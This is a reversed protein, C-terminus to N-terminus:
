GARMPIDGVIRDDPKSITIDQPAPTHGKPAEVVEKVQEYGPKSAKVVYHGPEPMFSYRGEYDTLRSTVVKGYSPDILQITTLPLVANSAIDYVVGWAKQLRTHLSLQAALMIVYLIALVWNLANQPVAIVVLIAAVAGVLLIPVALYNGARQIALWIKKVGSSLQWQRKANIPDLPVDPILLEEQQVILGNEAKYIHQYQGDIEATVIASPFHYAPKTAELRYVDPKLLAEYRGEKDSVVTAVLKNTGKNYIRIIALPLPQKTISDYVIGYFRREKKNKRGVLGVLYTVFHFLLTPLYPLYGWLPVSSALVVPVTVALTTQIAPQQAEITKAAQSLAKAVPSTDFETPFSAQVEGSTARNIQVTGVEVKESQLGEKAAVAQVLVQASQGASIGLDDASVYTEWYGNEDSVAITTVNTNFILTVVTFPQSTTGTFQIHDASTTAQGTLSLPSGVSSPVNVNFNGGNSTTTTPLSPVTQAPILVNQITQLIQKSRKSETPVPNTASPAPATELIELAPEITVSNSYTPESSSEDSAVAQLSLQPGTAALAQASIQEDEPASTNSPIARLSKLIDERNLFPARIPEISLHDDKLRVATQGDITTSDFFDALLSPTDFAIVFELKHGFAFDITPWIASVANQTVQGPDQDPLETQVMGDIVLSGPVYALYKPLPLSLFVNKAQLAGNNLIEMNVRMLQNPHLPSAIEQGEITKVSLDVLLEIPAQVIQAAILMNASWPTLIGEHNRSRVRVYYENDAQTGTFTFDSVHLWGSNVITDAAAGTKPILEFEVGSQGDALGNLDENIGIHIRDDVRSLLQPTVPLMFTYVDAFDSSTPGQKSGSTAAVARGFVLSNHPLGTETAHRAQGDSVTAVTQQHDDLLVFGEPQVGSYTWEYQVRDPGLVTVPGAIPAALAQSQSQLRQTSSGGSSAIAMTFTNTSTPDQSYVGEAGSDDWFKIRWYYITGDQALASGGYTINASRSGATCNAMATGAAGSDWVTTAFNNVTSVQIRYTNMIDGADPDNCIASFVPSSATIGTPNSLGAQANTNDVYLTTPATPAANSGNMNIRIILGDKSSNYTSDYPAGPDALTELDTSNTFGTVYLFPGDLVLDEGGDALADQGLTTSYLLDAAGNGDPSLKAVYVDTNSANTTGYANLAPFNSSSTSGTIYLDGNSDVLGERLTDSGNGGFYTAYELDSAGGGVPNFRLIYGDFATDFTTQYAGPTTPSAGSTTNCFTYVRSTTPDFRIAQVDSSPIATSYLLDAAGSGAPNIISLVGGGVSAYAGATTPYGSGGDNGGVYIMGNHVDFSAGTDQGNSGIFTSYLLDSSGGGAFTFKAVFFDLSGGNYTTDYAGATTPLDTSNTSGAIYVNGSDVLVGANPNDTLQSGGFYTSYVLSTGALNFESIFADQSGNKATGYAGPTTPFDSSATTGVVYINTADVYLSRRNNSTGEGSSGGFFTSFQLDASGNGDLSFASIFLDSSGSLATDYAGVSTPFNSSSTQGFVYLVGNQVAVADIQDSASGGLYSIYNVYPVSSDKIFSGMSTWASQLTGDNNRACWYYVTDASLAPAFTTMEDNTATTASSGSGILNAGSLCDSANTATVRYETTGVINSIHSYKASLTVVGARYAGDEPYNAVPPLPEQNSAPDFKAVIADWGGNTTVDYANGGIDYVPFDISDSEGTAYLYTGDYALGYLGDTGSGDLLDSATLDAAGNGSPDILAIFGTQGVATEGSTTPFDASSSTGAAAIVGSPLVQIGVVLDANSGGIYTSYLLDNVGNGAPDFKLVVGDYDGSNFQRYSGATTPFDGSLSEGGIYAIGADVQLVTLAEDDSGGIYSSYVLDSSGSSVPNIVMFTPDFVGGFTTQFAGVTTPFDPATTYGLIDVMSGSIALDVADSDGSAGGMLTAYQLDAAGNGAPDLIVLYADVSGGFTTDYAGPTTPFDSSNTTGAIYVLGGSVAIGGIYDDAAVSGGLYTSYVLSDGTSSLRFFVTDMTGVGVDKTTDYPTGGVGGATPFDTSITTTVVYAQGSVVAIDTGLEDGEANLEDDDTGGVYTSYILDANGAGDLSFKAVFVDSGGNQTQDYVGATVPFDTSVTIGAIYVSGGDFAISNAFDASSGGLFTGYTVGNPEAFDVDFSGMSTWASQTTGNDNQACWYYTAAHNLSTAQFFTTQLESLTTASTGSASLNLGNLCDSASTSSVRFHTTGTTSADQYKASLVPNKSVTSGDQPHVAVPSLVSQAVSYLRYESSASDFSSIYSLATNIGAATVFDGTNTDIQSDTWNAGGDASTYQRLSVDSIRQSAIFFTNADVADISNWNFDDTDSAIVPTAGGSWTSGGDVTRSFLLKHTTVDAYAVVATDADIVDLSYSGVVATGDIVATSWNAGGDTSVASQLHDNIDYYALYITLADFAKLSHSDIGDTSDVAVTTFNSGGDTTSAVYTMGDSAKTYTVFFTGSDVVSLSANLADDTIDVPIEESTAGLDTTHWVWLEPNPGGNDRLFSIFVEQNSVANINTPTSNAAVTLLVWTAGANQSYAFKGDGSNDDHYATFVHNQDLAVLDAGVVSSADDILYHTAARAVQARRSQWLSLSFATLAAGALLALLCLIKRENM